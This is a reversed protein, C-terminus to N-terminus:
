LNEKYAVGIELDLRRIPFRTLNTIESKIMTENPIRVYLNDPTRLNVSLLDISPVEGAISGLRITDGVGFPHEAIMFLGSVLNSASTQSAFGPAVTLIGAAGLLLGMLRVIIRLAMESLIWAYLAAVRFVMYTLLSVALINAILVAHHFLNGAQNSLLVVATIAGPGCLMPIALPSIAVDDKRAGERREEPTERIASQRGELMDLSVKLLIIGGAIGFAPITVGFVGLISLGALSFVFLVGFTILAAFRAMRLREQKTSGQTMALFAPVVAIPNVIAFLSVFSLFAFSLYDM